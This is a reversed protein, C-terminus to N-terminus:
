PTVIPAFAVLDSVLSAGVLGPSGGMVAAYENERGMLGLYNLVIAEALLGPANAIQTAAGSFPNRSPLEYIAPSKM